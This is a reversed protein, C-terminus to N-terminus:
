LCVGGFNGIDMEFGLVKIFSVDGDVLMVIESM